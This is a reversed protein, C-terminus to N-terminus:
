ELQHQTTNAERRRRFGALQIAIALVAMAGFVVPYPLARKEILQYLVGHLVTFAFVGYNWRQLSKWKEGGLRRLSWDNSLALLLAILLTAVLGTYNALGFADIRLALRKDPGVERLFYLVMSGMHVQLGVIVHVISVVGGWIGIDRRLDASISNPRNRLVNIPGILLTASVLALGAYATAMSLRWMPGNIRLLAYFAATLAASAIVLPVHHRIVRQRMRRSLWEKM